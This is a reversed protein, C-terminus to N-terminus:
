RSAWGRADGLRDDALAGPHKGDACRAAIAGPTEGERVAARAWRRRWGNWGSTATALDPAELRLRAADLQSGVQRAMESLDRLLNSVDRELTRQQAPTM